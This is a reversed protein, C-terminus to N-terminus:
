KIDPSFIMTEVEEGLAWTLALQGASFSFRRINSLAQLYRAALFNDPCSMRKKELPGFTIDGTVDGGSVNSTFRACGSNGTAKGGTFRLTMAPKQPVSKTQSLQKLYWATGNLSNLSLTGTIVAKREDLGNASLRWSRIATQTPCCAPDNPGPQVVELRIEGNVVGASKIQIRDGILSVGLNVISRENRAVAAVFLNTGSGGSSEWLLVVAENRGDGDLDGTRRFSDVLGITPLSVAGDALPEGEWLGDNLTVPSQYIGLYTANALEGSSPAYAVKAAVKGTRWTTGSRMSGCGSVVVFFMASIIIQFQRANM